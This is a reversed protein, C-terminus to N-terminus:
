YFGIQNSRCQSSSKPIWIQKTLGLQRLKFVASLELKQNFTPYHSDKYPRSCTFSKFYKKRQFKEKEEKLGTLLIYVVKTTTSTSFTNRNHYSLNEPM